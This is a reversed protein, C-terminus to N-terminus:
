NNKDVMGKRVISMLPFMSSSSLISELTVSWTLRFEPTVGLVENGIIWRGLPNSGLCFEPILAMRSVSKIITPPSRELLSSPDEVSNCVEPFPWIRFEYSCGDIVDLTCGCWWWWWTGRRSLLIRWWHMRWPVTPPLGGETKFLPNKSDTPSCTRVMLLLGNAFSDSNLKSCRKGVGLNLSGNEWDAYVIWLLRSSVQLVRTDDRVRGTVVLTDLLLTLWSLDFNSVETFDVELSIPILPFSAALTLM